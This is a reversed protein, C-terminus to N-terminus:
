YTIYLQDQPSVDFSEREAVPAARKSDITDLIKAPYNSIILYQRLNEVIGYPLTRNLGFIFAGGNRIPVVRVATKNKFTLLPTNASDLIYCDTGGGLSEVSFLFADNHIISFEPAGNPFDIVKKLGYTQAQIITFTLICLLIKIKM